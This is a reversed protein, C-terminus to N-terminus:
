FNVKPFLTPPRPNSEDPEHYPGSAPEQSYSLSVEPIM